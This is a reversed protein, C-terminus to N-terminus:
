SPLINKEDKLFKDINKTNILKEFYNIDMICNQKQYTTVSYYRWDILMDKKLMIIANRVHVEMGYITENKYKIIDIPNIWKYEALEHNLKVDDSKAKVLFVLGQSSSQDESRSFQYASLFAIKNEFKLGTEEKLERFITQIIDEGIEAKGGPFVWKSSFNSANHNRKTFLFKGKYEIIATIPITHKSM